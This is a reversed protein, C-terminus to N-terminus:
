FFYERKIPLFSTYILGNKDPEQKHQVCVLTYEAVVQEEVYASLKIVEGFDYNEKENDVKLILIASDMICDLTLFYHRLHLRKGSITVILTQLPDIPLRREENGEKNLVFSRDNSSVFTTESETAKLLYELLKMDDDPTFISKGRINFYEKDSRICFIKRDHISLSDQFDLVSYVSNEINIPEMVMLRSDIVDGPIYM